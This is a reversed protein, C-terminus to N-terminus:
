IQTNIIVTVFFNDPTVNEHAAEVLDLTMMQWLGNVRMQNLPLNKQANCAGAQHTFSHKIFVALNSKKFLRIRFVKKIPTKSTIVNVPLTNTQWINYFMM